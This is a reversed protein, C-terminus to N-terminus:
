VLTVNRLGTWPTSATRAFGVAVNEIRANPGTAPEGLGVLLLVDQPRSFAVFYLRMLDDFARDLAPGAPAGLGESFPRLSDELRHARSEQKPFRKFAQAHHRTRFDSGVDVITLPFELGKAQHISLVNLRDAPLQEMLDENVDIVGSALPAFIGWLIQRISNERHPSDRMVTADYSLLPAMQTVTRTIAELYVLGEPDHQFVPLWAVLDYLLQLLSVDHPWAGGRQPRRQAWGRVFARLSGSRAPGPAPPDASAFQQGAQRWQTLVDTVATPLPQAAQVAAQPDMCELMLGCLQQVPEIDALARGRPNFMGIPVRGELLAQRLLLPLRPNGGSSCEAPSSCLLACDGIRGAAPDRVVTAADRGRGVRVGAGNFVADIFGALDRALTGVDPRFMGLVPYPTFTGRRAAVLAPKNPVRAPGYRPDADAFGSFFAVVSPTSRYNNTLPITRARVGGAKRLREPFNVFLEVTAGRFRYLSQDDDGVVVMAGGRAAAAAGLALYIREQLLNTDQYEDVLIVRLTDTFEGARGSRIADLLQQELGAFDVTLSEKLQAEYSAVAECLVAAGPHAVATASRFREVDVQDHLFRDRMERVIGVLDRSTMRPQVNLHQAYALLDPNKHRQGHWLARQLVARAVFDELVIPPQSGAVRYLTLVQEAISDLTGTVVRNLDLRSLRAVVAADRAYRALLARRVVDGWGLVRSRLESAAKKTFTTALIEAPDLGDVFILKLVRLALATTKGTGPGAIVFLSENPAAEVVALQGADQMVQRNLGDPSPGSVCALFAEWTVVGSSPM